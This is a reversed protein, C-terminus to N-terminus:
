SLVQLKNKFQLPTLGTHKKFASYFASKSNFGAEFGVSVITYHEFEKSHLHSKVDEVRYENIFDIFSKNLLANVMSSLYCASIGLTEATSSLTLCPNRYIKNCQMLRELKKFYHNSKSFPKRTKAQIEKIKQGCLAAVITLLHLHKETFFNTEPHESDIVGFLSGDILIPVCIESCREEDDIIYRNDQKTNHVIEAEKNAAVSGVIGKGVPIQIPNYIINKFLNKNGYAAKQELLEKEKDYVYIVCDVFGFQHIINKTIELFVEEISDKHCLSISFCSIAKIEDFTKSSNHNYNM